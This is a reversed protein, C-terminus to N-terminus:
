GGTDVEVREVEAEQQKEEIPKGEVREGEATVARMAMESKLAELESKPIYRRFTDLLDEQMYGKAVDEGIRITKPRVGYPRLQQALWGETVPKGRRLERWPREGRSLLHEVMERSFMREADAEIFGM